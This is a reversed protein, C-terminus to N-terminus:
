EGQCWPCDECSSKHWPMSRYRIPLYVWRMWVRWVPGPILYAVVWDWKSSKPM